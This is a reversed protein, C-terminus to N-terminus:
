VKRPFKLRKMRDVDVSPERLDYAIHHDALCHPCKITIRRVIPKERQPCCLWGHPGGEKGLVEEAVGRIQEETIMRM